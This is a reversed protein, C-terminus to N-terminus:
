EATETDTESSGNVNTYDFYEISSSEEETETTTLSSTADLQVGLTGAASKALYRGAYSFTSADSVWSESSLSKLNDAASNNLAGLMSTMTNWQNSLQNLKVENWDYDDLSPESNEEEEEVVVDDEEVEEEEVAVDDEVEDTAESGDFWNEEAEPLEITPSDVDVDETNTTSGDVVTEESDTTSDASEETNSVSSLAEESALMYAVADASPTYTESVQTVVSASSEVEQTSEETAETNAQTVASNYSNASVASLLTNDIGSIM